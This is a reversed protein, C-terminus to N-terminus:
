DTLRCLRTEEQPGGKLARVVALTHSAIVAEEDTPIVWVSPSQGAPSIRTSGHGNADPDIHVGLWALGKCVRQRIVPSNEGIGATFVLADLGGLAATLSGIERVIRHVFFEIAEAAAPRDSALLVRVDNSMGSIGLLGSKKYLLDEIRDVNWGQRLLFLIVGPDLNGCRTGMPLGDLASFGMTTDVSQGDKMACLSAGSGLHAVIVRGASIDPAIRRLQGAIFEYSLGHFGWRRVGQGFMEDPLGFRDAVKPKTRHFATDFCAVQILDPRLQIVGKVAALNHPQHLPVLPILRELRSLVEADILTPSTFETGGHVMRHGVAVPSFKGGFQQRAWVSLHAFAEPHGFGPMSGGLSAHALSRGQQDKAKFHPSTGLGEIQGRAVLNLERNAVGYISFKLSFSGANLVIIADSM